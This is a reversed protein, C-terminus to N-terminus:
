GGRLPPLQFFDHSPDAEHRGGRTVKTHRPLPKGDPGPEAWDLVLRRHVIKWAGDRKEFRDLYRSRSQVAKLAGTEEDVEPNWIICYAEVRATDGDVEILWNTVHHQTVHGTRDMREILLDILDAPKGHFYGHEQIADPHYASLMVEREGRDVGRCYRGLAQRIQLHADIEHLDM